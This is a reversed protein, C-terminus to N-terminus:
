AVKEYVCYRTICVEPIYSTYKNQADHTWKTHAKAIQRNNKILLSHLRSPLLNKQILCMEKLNNFYERYLQYKVKFYCVIKEKKEKPCALMPKLTNVKDVYDYKSLIISCILISTITLIDQLKGCVLSKTETFYVFLDMCIM